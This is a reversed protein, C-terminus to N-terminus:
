CHTVQSDDNLETFRLTAKLDSNFDLGELLLEVPTTITVDEQEAIQPCEEGKFTNDNVVPENFVISRTVSALIM